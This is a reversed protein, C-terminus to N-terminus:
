DRVLSALVSYKFTSFVEADLGKFIRVKLRYLIEQGILTLTNSPFDGSLQM